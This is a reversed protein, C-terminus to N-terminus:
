KKEIKYYFNRTAFSGFLSVKFNFCLDYPHQFINFNFIYWGLRSQIIIIAKTFAQCNDLSLKLIIYAIISVRVYYKWHHNGFINIIIIILWKDKTYLSIVLMFFNEAFHSLQWKFNYNLLKHTKYCSLMKNMARNRYDEAFINKLVQFNM